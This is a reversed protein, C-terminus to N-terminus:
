LINNVFITWSFLTTLFIYPGLHSSTVPSHLLKIIQAGWWITNAHDFWSYHSLYPTHCTHPFVHAYLTNTPFGSPLLGSPLGLRLHPIIIFHIKL